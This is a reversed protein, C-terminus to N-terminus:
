PRGCTSCVHKGLADVMRGTPHDLCASQEHAGLADAAITSPWLAPNGALSSVDPDSAIRKLAARLRAIEDDGQPAMARQQLSAVVETTHLSPDITPLGSQENGRALLWVKNMRVALSGYRDDAPPINAIKEIQAMDARLGEIEVRAKALEAKKADFIEFSVGGMAVRWGVIISGKRLLELACEVERFYSVRTLRFTRKETM